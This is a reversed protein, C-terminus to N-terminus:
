HHLAHGADAFAQVRYQWGTIFRRQPEQAGEGRAQVAAKDAHAQRLVHRGIARVPEFQRHLRELVEGREAGRFEGDAMEQAGIQLARQLQHMVPRQVGVFM